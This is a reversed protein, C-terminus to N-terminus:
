YNDQEPDIDELGKNAEDILRMTELTKKFKEDRHFHLVPCFKSKFGSAMFSQIRSRAHEIAAFTKNQAAEDSGFISFFVDANRMDPAVDVRTVSIFGEIRPDNLHHTIADSVAEKVVRAVKEQRRTTM